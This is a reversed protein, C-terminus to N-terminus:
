DQGPVENSLAECHEATARTTERVIRPSWSGRAAETRRMMISEAFRVPIGASGVRISGLSVMSDRSRAEGCTAWTGETRAPAGDVTVSEEVWTVVVDGVAVLSGCVVVVLMPGGVVAMAGVVVATAVVVAAGVVEVVLV